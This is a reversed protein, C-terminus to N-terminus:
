SFSLMPKTDMMNMSEQITFTKKGFTIFVDISKINAKHWVENSIQSVMAWHFSLKTLQRCNDIFISITENELQISPCNDFKLCKLEKCIQRLLEIDEKALKGLNKLELKQLKPIKSITKLLDNENFSSADLSLEQIKKCVPLNDLFLELAEVTITELKEITLYKLSDNLGFIFENFGLIDIMRRITVKELKKCKEAIQNMQHQRGYIVFLDITLTSLNALKSVTDTGLGDGDSLRLHQINTQWTFDSNSFMSETWGFGTLHLTKLQPCSELSKFITYPDFQRDEFIELEQLKKSRQLVMKMSEIAENSMLRTDILTMSKLASADITLNNFRKCVLAFNQFVDETNM